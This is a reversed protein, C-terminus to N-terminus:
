WDFGGIIFHRRLVMGVIKMRTLEVKTNQLDSEPGVEPAKKELTMM